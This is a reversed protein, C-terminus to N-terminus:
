IGNFHPQRRVSRIEETHSYERFIPRDSGGNYGVEALAELFAQKMSSVPSVVEPERKNDGLVALFEGYNAPVVTGTALRPLTIRPANSSTLVDNNNLGNMFKNYWDDAFDAGVVKEYIAHAVGAFGTAILKVLGIILKPVTSFTVNIGSELISILANCISKGLKKVAAMLEPNSETADFGDCLGTAFDDILQTATDTIWAVADFLATLAKILINAWDVNELLTSVGESLSDATGPNELFGIVFDLGAIVAKSIVQLMKGITSDKGVTKEWDINNINEALQKGFANFDKGDLANGLDSFLSTLKETLNSIVDMFNVLAPTIVNLLPAALASLSNKLYTFSTKLDSLNKNVKPSIKSIEGLGDKITDYWNSTIKYM